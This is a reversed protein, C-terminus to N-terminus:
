RDSLFFEYDAIQDGDIDTAPEWSFGFYLSDVKENDAPFVAATIKSPPHNDYAEQWDIKVELNRLTDNRNLDTYNINNMGRILSPLFFRSVMFTNEINLSDIGIVSTSDQKHFLFKLYYFYAIPLQQDNISLLFQSQFNLSDTYNGVNKITWKKTWLNKDNSWYVEISDDPSSQVFTGVLRADVIPFPSTVSM